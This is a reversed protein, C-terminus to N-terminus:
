CQHASGFLGQSVPCQSRGIARAWKPPSQTFLPKAKSTVHVAKGKAPCSARAQAKPAPGERAEIGAGQSCPGWEQGGPRWCSHAGMRPTSGPRGDRSVQCADSRCDFYGACLMNPSVDAGYVGGPQQMQPRRGPPGPGGAALQLLWECRVASLPCEARALSTPGPRQERPARRQGRAGVGSVRM